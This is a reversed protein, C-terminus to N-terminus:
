KSKLKYPFFTKIRHEIVPINSLVNQSYLDEIEERTVSDTRLFKSFLIYNEKRREAETKNEVPFVLVKPKKCLEVVHGSSILIYSPLKETKDINSHESDEIKGLNDKYASFIEISNDKVEEYWSMFEILTIFFANIRNFFKKKLTVIEEFLQNPERTTLCMNTEETVVKIPFSPNPLPDLYITGQSVPLRFMRGDVLTLAESLSMMRHHDQCVFDVPDEQFQTQKWQDAGFMPVVHVLAAAARLYLISYPHTFVEKLYKKKIHVQYSEGFLLLYQYLGLFPNEKHENLVRSLEDDLVFTLIEDLVTVKITTRSHFCVQVENESLEIIWEDVSLNEKKYLELNSLIEKLIKRLRKSSYVNDITLLPRTLMSSSSPLEVDQCISCPNLHLQKSSAMDSLLNAPLSPLCINQHYHIDTRTIIETELKFLLQNAVDENWPSGYTFDTLMQNFKDFLKPWIVGELYMEGNKMFKPRFSYEEAELDTPSKVIRSIFERMKQFCNYVYTPIIDDGITNMDFRTNVFEELTIPVCNAHCFVDSKHDHVLYQRQFNNEESGNLDQTVVFNKQVLYSAITELNDMPYSIKIYLGLQGNHDFRFTMENSYREKYQDSGVTFKDSRYCRAKIKRNVNNEIEGKFLVVSSLYKSLISSYIKLIKDESFVDGDYMVKRVDCKKAMFNSPYLSRVHHTVPIEVQIFRKRQDQNNISDNNIFSRVNLCDQYSNGHIPSLSQNTFNFLNQNVQSSRPTHENFEDQDPAENDTEQHTSHMVYNEYSSSEEDSNCLVQQNVISGFSSPANDIIKDFSLSYNVLATSNDSCGQQDEPLSYGEAEDVESNPINSNEIHNSQSQSPINNILEDLALSNDINSQSSDLQGQQIAPTSGEQSNPFKSPEIQNSQSQSPINNILEDLALSYNVVATSNDSCGQQDEPLSYGEASNPFNSNEIHNSQSQSPINNILEDLALSNDINSQSSDLQGEQFAPISGELGEVLDERHHISYYVFNEDEKIDTVLTSALNHNETEKGQGKECLTCIYFGGLRSDIPNLVYNRRIGKKLKSTQNENLNLKCSICKYINSFSTNVRYLNLLGEVNKRSDKQTQYKSSREKPQRSQYSRKKLKTVQSVIDELNQTKFLETYALACAEKKM